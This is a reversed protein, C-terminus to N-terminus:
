RPTARATIRCRRSGCAPPKSPVSRMSRVANTPISPAKWACFGDTASCTACRGGWGDLRIGSAAGEGYVRAIILVQDRGEDIVDEIDGGWERWADNWVEMARCHGEPGYYVPDSDIPARAIHTEVEPDDFIDPILEFDSRNWALFAMRAVRLLMATRVRSGPPQRLVSRMTWQAIRPWRVGVREVIVRQGKVPDDVEQSM